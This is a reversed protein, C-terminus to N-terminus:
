DSLDRAKYNEPISNIRGSVWARARETAKALAGESHTHQRFEDPEDQGDPLYRQLKAVFLVFPSTRGVDGTDKRVGTPLGAKKLIRTLRRIWQAWAEGVRYGSAETEATGLVRLARDCDRMVDQSALAWARLREPAGIELVATRRAAVRAAENAIKEKLATIEVELDRGGGKARKAKLAEMKHRLAATEDHIPTMIVDRAAAAATKIVRVRDIVALVSATQRELAANALYERTASEIKNRFRVCRKIRAKTTIQSFKEEEVRSWGIAEELEIWGEPGLKAAPM